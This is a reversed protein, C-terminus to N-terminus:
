DRDYYDRADKLGQLVIRESALVRPHQFAMLQGDRALRELPEKEV